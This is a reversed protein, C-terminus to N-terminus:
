RIDRRGKDTGCSGPCAGEIRHLSVRWADRIDVIWLNTSHISDEVWTRDSFFEWCLIGLIEVLKEQRRIIAELLLGAWFSHITDISHALASAEWVNEYIELGEDNGVEEMNISELAMMDLDVKERKDPRHPNQSM